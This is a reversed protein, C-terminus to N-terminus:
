SKDRHLILLIGVLIEPQSSPRTMQSRDRVRALGSLSGGTGARRASVWRWNCPLGLGAHAGSDGRQGRGQGSRPPRGPSYAPDSAPFDMGAADKMPDPCRMGSAWVSAAPGPSTQRRFPAGAASWTLLVNQSVNCIFRSEAQAM